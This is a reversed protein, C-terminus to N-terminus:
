SMIFHKGSPTKKKIALSNALVPKAETFAKLMKEDRTREPVPMRKKIIIGMRRM